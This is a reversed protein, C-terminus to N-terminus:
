RKNSYIIQIAVVFMGLPLMLLLKYNSGLAGIIKDALLGWLIPGVITAIAVVLSHIGFFFSTHYQPILSALYARNVTTTSGILGGIVVSFYYANNQKAFFLALSLTIVWTVLIAFLVKRNSLKSALMGSLISCIVGGISGAIFLKFLQEQELSFVRTAFISLFAAITGTAGIFFFLSFFYKWVEPYENKISKMRTIISGNQENNIRDIFQDKELFLVPVFFLTSIIGTWFFSNLINLKSSLFFIIAAGIIQGIYGFSIGKGSIQGLDKNDPAVQKILSNYISVGITYSYASVTFLTLGVFGASSGSIRKKLIGLLIFISFSIITSFVLVSKRLSKRDCFRGISPNTIMVAIMSIAYAMAYYFEKINNDIAIWTPFYLLANFIFISISFDYMYWILRQKRNTENM